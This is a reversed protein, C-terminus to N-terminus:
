VEAYKSCHNPDLMILNIVIEWKSDSWFALASLTRRKNNRNLLDGISRDLEFFLNVPLQYIIRWGKCPTPRLNLWGGIVILLYVVLFVNLM